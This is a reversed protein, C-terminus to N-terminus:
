LFSFLSSINQGDAQSVDEEEEDGPKRGDHFDVLRKASMQSQCDDDEMTDVGLTCPEKGPQAPKRSPDSEDQVSCSSECQEDERCDKYVPKLPTSDNEDHRPGKLPQSKFFKMSQSQAESRPPEMSEGPDRVASFKKCFQFLRAHPLTGGKRTDDDTTHMRQAKRKLVNLAPSPPPPTPHVLEPTSQPTSPGHINVPRSALTPAVPKKRVPTRCEMRDGGYAGTQSLAQGRTQQSGGEYRFKELNGPCIRPSTKHTNQIECDWRPGLMSKAESQNFKMRRDMISIPMRKPVSESVPRPAELYQNWKQRSPGGTATSDTSDQPDSSFLNRAPVYRRAEALPRKLVRDAAKLKRPNSEQPQVKAGGHEELRWPFQTPRVDPYEMAHNINREVPAGICSPISVNVPLHMLPQHPANKSPPVCPIGADQPDEQEPQQTMDKKEKTSRFPCLAAKPPLVLKKTVDVGVVDEHILSAVINLPTNNESPLEAVAKVKYPSPFKEIFIRENLLLKDDHTTGAILWAHNTAGPVGGDTLRALSVEFRVYKQGLRESPQIELSVTPPLRNRLEQKLQNGFPYNKMTVTEIRRPDAAALAHLTGLGAAVLRESLLKGINPLQRAQRLSGDWIRLKMCKRLLLSNATAALHQQHPFYRSMAQAVQGGVKLVQSTEQRLSADLTESPSDSLAENTLVFIKEQVNGIREKPKNPKAPDMVRYKVGVEDKRCNIGNLIKKEGRRLSINSFEEASAMMMILDPVSAHSPAETMNIMTQFRIYYRAMVNGAEQPELSFGYEDYKVQKLICSFMM